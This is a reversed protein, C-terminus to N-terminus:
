LTSLAASTFYSIICSSQICCGATWTCEEMSGLYGTCDSGERVKDHTWTTRFYSDVNLTSPSLIGQCLLYLPTHLATASDRVENALSAWLDNSVYYSRSEDIMLHGFEVDASRGLPASQGLDRPLPLVEAAANGSTVAGHGEIRKILTELQLLRDALQADVAHRSRKPARGRGSPYVCDSKGQICSSCPQQRDCKVKRRRCLDCSPKYQRNAGSQPPVASSSTHKATASSYLIETSDSHSEAGVSASVPLTEM